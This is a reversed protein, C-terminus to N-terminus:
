STVILSLSISFMTCFEILELTGGSNERERERKKKKKKKKSEPEFLFKCFTHSCEACKGTIQAVQGQTSWKSLAFGRLLTEQLDGSVYETQNRCCPIYLRDCVFGLRCM